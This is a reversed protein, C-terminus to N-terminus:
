SRGIAIIDITDQAKDALARCLQDVQPLITEFAHKLQLALATDKVDNSTLGFHVWRAGEGKCKEAISEFLAAVDHRTSSEIEMTRSLTVIEPRATREIDDAAESPILGLQAQMKAVTAEIKLWLAHRHAEEFVAIMEQNGYRGYDIPSVPM